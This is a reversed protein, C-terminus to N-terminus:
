APLTASILATLQTTDDHRPAASAALRGFTLQTVRFRRARWHVHQLELNEQRDCEPIDM